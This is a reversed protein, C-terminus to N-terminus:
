DPLRDVFSFNKVVKWCPVESHFDVDRTRVDDPRAAMHLSYSAAGVIAHTAGCTTNSGRPAARPSCARGAAAHTFTSHVHHHTNLPGRWLLSAPVSKRRTATALYTRLAGRFRVLPSSMSAPRPHAAARQGGPTSARGRTKCTVATSAFPDAREFDEYECWSSVRFADRM